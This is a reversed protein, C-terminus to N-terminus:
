VQVKKELIEIELKIKKRELVLNKKREENIEVEQELCKIQLALLQYKHHLLNTEEANLSKKKGSLM